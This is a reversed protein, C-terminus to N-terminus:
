ATRPTPGGLTMLGGAALSLLALLLLLPGFRGEAALLYTLAPGLLAPLTNTLNLLGLDRGRHASSPLLRMAYASQIALFAGLGVAFLAYGAVATGWQPWLGMIALGCACACALAALSARAGGRRDILRGIAMSVPASVLTVIGTIWAVRAALQEGSAAGQPGAVSEFYFLIFAFLVNGAVQVLLRSLGVVGLRWFGHVSTNTTPAAAEYQVSRRTTLLFPAALATVLGLTCFLRAAWSWDPAWTIMVAAVTGLPYAAGYVGGLVGKQDDGTEDAAIAILPALFTNLAAQFLVVAAVLEAPNSALHLTIYSLATGFLGAVAVARRGFPRRAWLDSVMGALINGVSAALAGAISALSLLAVKGDAEALSEVKLPLLLTLLPVYACVAGGYALGYLLLYGRRRHLIM